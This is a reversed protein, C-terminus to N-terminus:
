SEVALLNTNPTFPAVLLKPMAEAAAHGAPCNTLMGAVATAAAIHEAGDSVPMVSVFTVMLPVEVNLPAIVEDVIADVVILADVSLPVIVLEPLMLPPVSVEGAILVPMGDDLVPTCCKRVVPQVRGLEANGNLLQPNLALKLPDNASVM